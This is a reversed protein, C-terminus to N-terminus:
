KEGESKSPKKKGATLATENALYMCVLGFLVTATSLYITWKMVHNYMFDCIRSAVDGGVILAVIYGFFTLGGVFLTIMISYGFIIKCIGSLKKMKEKM